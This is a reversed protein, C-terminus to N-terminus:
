VLIVFREIYRRSAFPNPPLYRVDKGLGSGSMYDCRNEDKFVWKKFAGPRKFKRGELKVAILGAVGERKEDWSEFRALNIFCAEKLKPDVQEDPYWKYAFSGASRAPKKGENMTVASVCMTQDAENVRFNNGIDPSESDSGHENTWYDENLTLMNDPLLYVTRFDTLLCISGPPARSVAQEMTLHLYHGPDREADATKAMDGSNTEEAPETRAVVTASRQWVVFYKDLRLISNLETQHSLWSWSPAPNVVSETDERPQRRQWCLDFMCIELYIGHFYHFDTAQALVSVIGKIAVPRDTEYTLACATYLRRAEGLFKAISQLTMGDEASGHLSDHMGKKLNTGPHYLLEANPHVKSEPTQREACEWFLGTAGFFLTRVALLREQVIWARTQLPATQVDFEWLVWGATNSIEFNTGPLSLSRACLPNRRVFMGEDSGSAHLAALVLSAGRYVTGMKASERVWDEKSDQLICLSDVWLFNCGLRRTASVADRITQPLQDLPLGHGMEELNETTTTICRTQGWCYSLAFYRPVEDLSSLDVVRVENEMTHVDILRAPGDELRTVPPSKQCDKHKEKCVRLWNSALDIAAEDGTSDCLTTLTPWSEAVTHTIGQSDDTAQIPVVFITNVEAVSSFLEIVAEPPAGIRNGDHEHGSAEAIEIWPTYLNRECLRAEAQDPSMGYSQFASGFIISCLHCGANASTILSTLTPHHQVRAKLSSANTRAESNLLTPIKQAVDECYTCLTGDRWHTVGLTDTSHDFANSVNSLKEHRARHWWERLRKRFPRLFKM